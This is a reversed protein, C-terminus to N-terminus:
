CLNVFEEKIILEVCIEGDPHNVYSKILLDRLAMVESLQESVNEHDQYLVIRALVVKNKRTVVNDVLKHDWYYAELIIDAFKKDIMDM